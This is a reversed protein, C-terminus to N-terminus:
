PQNKKGSKKLNQEWIPGNCLVSYLERHQETTPNIKMLCQQSSRKQVEVRTKTEKTEWRTRM